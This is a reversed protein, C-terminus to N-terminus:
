DDPLGFRDLEALFAAAAAWMLAISVGVTGLEYGALLWSKLYLPPALLFTTLVIGGAVAKYEYSQLKLRIGMSM